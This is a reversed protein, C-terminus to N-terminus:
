YEHLYSELLVLAPPLGGQVVYESLLEYVESELVFLTQYPPQEGFIARMNQNNVAHKDGVPSTLAPFAKVLGDSIQPLSLVSEVVSIDETRRRIALWLTRSGEMKPNANESPRIGRANPHFCGIVIDQVPQLTILDRVIIHLLLRGAAGRHKVLRQLFPKNSLVHHPLYSWMRQDAVGMPPTRSGNWWRAPFRVHQGALSQWLLGAGQAHRFAFDRCIDDYQPALPSVVMEMFPSNEKEPPLHAARHLADSLHNNKVRSKLGRSEHAQQSLDIMELTKEDHQLDQLLDLSHIEDEGVKGASETSRRSLLGYSNTYGMKEKALTSSEVPLSIPGESSAYTSSDIDDTRQVLFTRVKARISGNRGMRTEPTTDVPPPPPPPPSAAGCIFRPDSAHDNESGQSSLEAWEAADGKTPFSYSSDDMGPIEELTGTTWSGEDQSVVTAAPLRLKPVSWTHSGEDRSDMSEGGETLGEPILGRKFNALEHIPGLVTEDDRETEGRLLQRRLIQAGRIISTDSAQIKGRRSSRHRHPSHNVSGSSKSHSSLSGSGVKLLTPLDQHSRPLDLPEVLYRPRHIVHSRERFRGEYVVDNGYPSYMNAFQDNQADQKSSRSYREMFHGESVHRQHARSHPVSAM